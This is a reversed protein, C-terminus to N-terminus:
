AASSARASLLAIQDLRFGHERLAEVQDGPLPRKHRCQVAACRLAELRPDALRNAAPLGFLRRAITGIRSAARISGMGDTAAIRLVAEEIASFGSASRAFTAPAQAADAFDFALYAMM